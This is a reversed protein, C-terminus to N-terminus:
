NNSMKIYTWKPVCNQNAIILKYPQQVESIHVFAEVSFILVSVKLM